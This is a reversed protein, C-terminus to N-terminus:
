TEVGLNLKWQYNLKKKTRLIQQVAQKIYPVATIVFDDYCIVLRHFFPGSFTRHITLCDHAAESRRGDDASATYLVAGQATRVPSLRLCHRERKPLSSSHACPLRRPHRVNSEDPM